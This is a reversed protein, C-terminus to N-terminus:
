EVVIRADAVGARIARNLAAEAGAVDPLPGIRVRYAQDRPADYRTSTQAGLAALRNRMLDAYRLGGFRGLEVFLQGPRIPVRTVNEPLHLPVAEAAGAQAAAAVTRGPAVRGRSSQAAGPPPPLSEARVAGTPASAVVPAPDATDVQAALQRSPGEVVQVRVRFVPGAAGLLRAARPSVAILRALSDPGRDNVRVLVQLGTELNTVRVIAPLQLTPHAAVMAGPEALEGNATFAARDPLVSALGTEDYDFQERPYRFVGGTQYPAGVVYRPPGSSGSPAPRRRRFLTCGPLVTATALAVGALLARRTM